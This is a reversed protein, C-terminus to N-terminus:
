RIFMVDEVACRLFCGRKFFELRYPTTPVTQRKITKYRIGCVKSGAKGKKALKFSFAEIPQLCHHVQSIM